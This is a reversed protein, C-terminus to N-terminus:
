RVPVGAAAAGQLPPQSVPTAAGVDGDPDAWGIITIIPFFTQGYSQHKYSDAGLTVVPFFRMTYDIGLADAQKKDAQEAKIRVVIKGMLDEMARLGGLSTTKYLVQPMSGDLAKMEVQRQVKYVWGAPTDDPRPGLKGFAPTMKEEVLENKKPPEYDTWCTWGHQMSLVNVLWPTSPKFTEDNQGVVWMGSKLLRMLPQGGLSPATARSQSLGDAVENAMDELSMVGSGPRKTIDTM